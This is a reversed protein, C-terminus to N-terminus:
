KNKNGPEINRDMYKFVKCKLVKIERNEYIFHASPYPPSLARVLNYKMQEWEGILKEM